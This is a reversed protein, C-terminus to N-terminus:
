EGIIEIRLGGENPDPPLFARGDSALSRADLGTRAFFHAAQPGLDQLNFALHHVGPAMPPGGPLPQALELEIGDGCLRLVRLGFQPVEEAPGMPMFGFLDAYKAAAEDLDAVVIGIHMLKRSM